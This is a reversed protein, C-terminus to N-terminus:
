EVRLREVVSERALKAYCFVPIAGCLALLIPLCIVSPLLTVSQKFFWVQGAILRTIAYTLAFGITLTFLATMVTFGGGEFILTQRLQRGTMGVSQLMAFERRRTFISTVIANTFNLVGILALIFALCGGLALYTRQLGAFEVGLSNRSKFALNPETGTTYDNLWTEFEVIKDPVVNINTQMPQTDGYFDLFVEDALIVEIGNGFIFRSSLHSPYRRINGIVEFERIEGDDNALAIIEGVKPATVGETSMVFESVVAYNGSKLTVIDIGSIYEAEPKGIGYIQIPRKGGISHYYINSVEAAGHTEVEALFENSVGALNGNGGGGVSFVTNDAVAFDSIISRSLYEDMDFSKVASFVSNLLVMSLSLSLVIVCLKKKERTINAWAFTLPTVTGTRKTKRRGGGTEGSYKVAEVPFVMAAIRGPRRCSIFVTLLSFLASFVFVLPNVGLVRGNSPISTIQLALPVSLVGIICGVVLGVPIGIASLVIAQGRVIRRIQRGTTGITKLLGYFRIDANVSIAFISYIILYGSLLVLVLIFVVIGIMTPDIEGAAYAWNVGTRIKDESYGCEKVLERMKGDIGFSDSFWVNANITGFIDSETIMKGAFLSLAYDKSLWIQQAPAAEDGEWYGCLSFTESYHKGAVTFELPVAVGLEHPLRLADLVLTSCALENEATPMKGVSPESFNWKTMKDECYRIESYEKKLAENEAVAVAINYSIDKIRSSQAFHKYQETTLQKLVGHARTGVQRMTQEQIATVISGGLTFVSTFLVATLAIALGAIINRTRSAKLSRMILKRLVPKNDVNM